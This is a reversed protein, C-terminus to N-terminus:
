RSVSERHFFNVFAREYTRFLNQVMNRLRRQDLENLSSTQGGFFAGSLRALEPDRYIDREWESISEVLDTYVSVRTIDTNDRIGLILFILTIVVGVGSCVEALSAWDSLKM